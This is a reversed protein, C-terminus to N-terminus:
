EAVEEFTDMKCGEASGKPTPPEAAAVVFFFAGGVVSQNVIFLLTGFNVVSLLVNYSIGFVLFVSFSVIFSPTFIPFPGFRFLKM